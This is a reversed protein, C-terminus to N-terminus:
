SLWRRTPRAMPNRKEPHSAFYRQVIFRAQQVQTLLHRMEQLTMRDAPPVTGSGTSQTGTQTGSPQTPTPRTPTPKDVAKSAQERQLRAARVELEM